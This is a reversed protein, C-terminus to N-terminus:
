SFDLDEHENFDVKTQGAGLRRTCPHGQEGGCQRDGHHVEAMVASLPFAWPLSLDPQIHDTIYKNM